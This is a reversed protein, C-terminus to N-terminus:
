GLIDENPRDIPRGSLESEDEELHLAQNPLVDAVADYTMSSWCIKVSEITSTKLTMIVTMVINKEVTNTEDSVVVVRLVTNYDRTRLIDMIVGV